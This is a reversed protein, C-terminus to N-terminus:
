VIRKLEGGAPKGERLAEKLLNFRRKDLPYLQQCVAGLILLIGPILIFMNEIAGLAQASQSNRLADFGNTGLIWGLIQTALSTSLSFVIGYVSMISGEARKKLVYEGVESLDYLISNFLQWFCSYALSFICAYILMGRYSNIGVAWSIVCGVGSLALGISMAAKKGLRAAFFGFIPTYIFNAILSVLFVTSTIEDKLGLNYRGFFVMTSSYFTNAGIFCIIVGILYKYPKLCAVRWYDKFIGLLGNKEQKPPRGDIIEKGRTGNWTLFISGCSILALAAALLRWAGAESMGAGTLGSIVTLPLVMGFINGILGFIRAYTRLTGREDYDCTLEAGLASYPTFYMGFGAWFLLGAAIYVGMKVSQSGEFAHFLFILGIGLPALSLLLYPRRRGFRSYTHDSIYGLVAESVGNLLITVSSITGAQVPSLGAVTTLFVLLYVTVFNYPGADAISAAGYIALDRKKM